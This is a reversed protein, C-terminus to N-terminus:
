DSWTETGDYDDRDKRYLVASVTGYPFFVTCTAGHDERIPYEANGLGMARGNRGAPWGFRYVLENVKMAKLIEFCENRSVYGDPMKGAPLHRIEVRDIVETKVVPKVQPVPTPAPEDFASPRIVVAVMGMAMVGVMAQKWSIDVSM